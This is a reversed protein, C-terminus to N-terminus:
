VGGRWDPPFPVTGSSNSMVFQHVQFGHQHIGLHQISRKIGRFTSPVPEICHFELPVMTTTNSLELQTQDFDFGNVRKRGPFCVASMIQKIFSEMTKGWAPLDFVPDHSLTRALGISDIAKNCGVTISLRSHKSDEYDLKLMDDLWTSSPCRSELSLSEVGQLFPNRKLLELERDNCTPAPALEKPPLSSQPTSHESDNVVQPQMDEPSSVAHPKTSDELLATEILAAPKLWKMGLYHNGGLTCMGLIGISWKLVMFTATRRQYPPSTM